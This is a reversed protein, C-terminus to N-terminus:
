YSNRDRTQGERPARAVVRSRSRDRVLSASGLICFSGRVGDREVSREVHVLSSPGTLLGDPSSRPRHHGRRQVLRGLRPPPETGRVCPPPPRPPPPRARTRLRCAGRTSWFRRRTKSMTQCTKGPILSAGDRRTKRALFHKRVRPARWTRHHSSKGVIPSTKPKTPGSMARRCSREDRASGLVRTM